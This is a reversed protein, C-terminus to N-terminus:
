WGRITELLKKAYPDNAFHDRVPQLLKNLAEAVAPKLDGPHCEGSKYDAVLDDFNTYTKPGGFEEKRNVRLLGQAPLIIHECYDIIPNEKVIQPPGFSKKIKRQVDERTDEMFIASDPDSKSM